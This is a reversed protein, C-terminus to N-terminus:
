KVGKVEDFGKGFVGMVTNMTMFVNSDVRKAIKLVEIAENKRVVIILMKKAQGTYWGTCDVVTVGRVFRETIREAVEEYKETFIFLQASQKKGTLVFDVTFSVVGMMVYGYMLGEINFNILLSSAIIGCDCYMIMKGPSVNRYKTVLMAVIDTGGTSGGQALALAIGAGTLIGSIVACMFRDTVLSEPFLPQLIGLLFSGVCIAFISKIGFKPGLVKLAISILVVNILFYSVGVPILGDTLYYIVTGVGTAGGGVIKNPIQFATASFAYMLMGLAIIVYSKIEELIRNM